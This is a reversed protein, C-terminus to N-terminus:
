DYMHDTGAFYGKDLAPGCRRYQCQRRRDHCYTDKNGKGGKGGAQLQLGKGHEIKWPQDPDQQGIAYKRLPYLDPENLFEM